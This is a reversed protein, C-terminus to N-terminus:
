RNPCPAPVFGKARFYPEKADPDSLRQLLELDEASVLAAMPKGRRAIRIREGGYCVRNLADALNNRAQVITLTTM